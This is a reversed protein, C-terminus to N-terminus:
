QTTQTTIPMGNNETHATKNNPENTQEGDDYFRFMKVQRTALNVVPVRGPQPKLGLKEQYETTGIWCSCTMTTVNRYNSAHCRHLHGGIFLDPVTDIVLNDKHPDPIYLTSTHTPALHRRKLLFKMILDARQQGGASRIHDVADSYYIFSFGHYILCDFGPFNNIAHVNVIAPNSVFTANPIEYMAKAFDKYLPPQPEAISMADHNGPSIIIHVSPPIMKLYNALTRYQEHIDQISLDKDQNPYIGVGDVLDGVLFLYRVNRAVRRQEPTGHEGRLWRIFKEFEEKLFLNSGIHICSVGVLYAEDPSKKLEKTNPVDPLLISKAFIINEKITGVIGVVEDLVSEKAAAHAEANNKHALVKITGTADEITLLINNNKTEQKDLILGIISCEESERATNGQMIRNISIPSGLEKRDQLIRRLLNYRSNFYGVFDQVTRKQPIGKYSFLVRVAPPHPTDFGVDTFASESSFSNPTEKEQQPNQTTPTSILAQFTASSLTGNLALTQANTLLKEQQFQQSIKLLTEPSIIVGKSLLLKIIQIQKAADGGVQSSVAKM